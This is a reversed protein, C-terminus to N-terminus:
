RDALWTALQERTRLVDARETLQPHVADDSYGSPRGTSKSVIWSNNPERPKGRMLRRPTEDLLGAVASYTARQHHQNLAHLVTDLNYPAM